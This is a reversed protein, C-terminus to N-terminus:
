YTFEINRVKVRTSISYSYSSDSLLEGTIELKVSRQTTLVNSIVTESFTLQTIKILKTDSIATWGTVDACVEDAVKAVGSKLKVSGNQLRLSVKNSSQLSLSNNHNYYYVICDNSSNIDITKSGTVGVLYESGGYGARRIDTEILAVISQLDSRLRSMKLNMSGTSVCSVYLGIVMALLLSGLSLAILLEILSFGTIKARSKIM